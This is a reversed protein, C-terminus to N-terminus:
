MVSIFEKASVFTAFQPHLMSGIVLEMKKQNIGDSPKAMIRSLGHIEMMTLMLEKPNLLVLNLYKKQCQGHQGIEVVRMSRFRVGKGLRLYQELLGVDLIM